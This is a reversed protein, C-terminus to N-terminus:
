ARSLLQKFGQSKILLARNAIIIKRGQPIVISGGTIELNGVAELIQRSDIPSNVFVMYSGQAQRAIDICSNDFSLGTIVAITRVSAKLSKLYAPEIQELVWETFLLEYDAPLQEPSLHSLFSNAEKPAQAGLLFISCKKSASTSQTASEEPLKQYSLEAKLADSGYFHIFDGCITRVKDQGSVFGLPGAYHIFCAKYRENQPDPITSDMRNWRREISEFRIGKSFVMYNMATQEAFRRMPATDPLQRFGKTFDKFPKSILVVGANFYKYKGIANKPWDIDGKIGSVIQDRDLTTGPSNEEFAYLTDMDPYCEFINPADPTILIDRDLMLVRDYGMDFLRFCQFKEFIPSIFRISPQECAFYSIGYKQAYNQVSLMTPIFGPNHGINVTFIATKTKM